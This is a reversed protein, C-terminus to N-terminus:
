VEPPRVMPLNSPKPEPEDDRGYPDPEKNEHVYTNASNCRCTGVRCKQGHWTHKCFGCKGISNGLGRDPRWSDPLPESPEPLHVVFDM